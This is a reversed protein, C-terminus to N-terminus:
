WLEVYNQTQFFYILNSAISGHSRILDIDFWNILQQHDSHSWKQDSKLGINKAIPEHSISYDLNERRINEIM